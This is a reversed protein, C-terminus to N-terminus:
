TQEPKCFIDLARDQEAASCQRLADTIDSNNFRSAVQSLIALHDDNSDEPVLLAFIVDVEVDDPSNFDVGNQLTLLAAVPTQLEPLHGHPVAVGFGLATSGLREREILADLIDVENLIEETSKDADRDNRTTEDQSGSTMSNLSESLMLSAQQLAKKKSSVTVGCAVNRIDLIDVLDVM